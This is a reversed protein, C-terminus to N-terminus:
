KELPIGVEKLLLYNNVIESDIVLFIHSHIWCPFFTTPTKVAPSFKEHEQRGPHLFLMIFCPKWSNWSRLVDILGHIESIQKQKEIIHMKKLYLHIERQIVNWNDQPPPHSGSAQALVGKNTLLCIAITGNMSVSRYINYQNLMTRFRWNQCHCKDQKWNLPMM